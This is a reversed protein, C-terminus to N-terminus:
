AKEVIEWHGGKDPGVRRILGKAKLQKLHWYVGDETIECKAALDRINISPRESILRIIRVSTKETTKETTKKTTKKTTKETTSISVNSDGSDGGGKSSVKTGADEGVEPSYNDNLPIAISFVDEEDMVPDAGSYLRTDGGFRNLFACVTEFTDSQAGNGGRKFEVCVNEGMKLVNEFDSRTM